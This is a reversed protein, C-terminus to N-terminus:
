GKECESGHKEETGVVKALDRELHELREKMFAVQKALMEIRDEKPMGERGHCCSEQGPNDGHELYRRADHAGHGCCGDQHHHGRGEHCCGM